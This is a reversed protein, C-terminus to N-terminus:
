YDYIHELRFEREKIEALVAGLDGVEALAVLQVAFGLTHVM